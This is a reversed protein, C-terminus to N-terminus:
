VLGFAKGLRRGWVGEGHAAATAAAAALYSTQFVRCDAFAVFSDATALVEGGGGNRPRPTTGELGELGRRAKKSEKWPTLWATESVDSLSCGLLFALGGGRGRGGLWWRVPANGVVLSPLLGLGHGRPLPRLFLGPLLTPWRPTAQETRGFPELGRVGPKSTCHTFRSRKPGRRRQWRMGAQYAFLM